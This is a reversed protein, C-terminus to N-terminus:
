KHVQSLEPNGVTGSVIVWNRLVKREYREGQVHHVVDGKQQGGQNKRNSFLYLSENLTSNKLKKAREATEWSRLQREATEWSDRLQREAIEWSDKLQREATKWSDKLQREATKWSDKLQKEATEWSNSM